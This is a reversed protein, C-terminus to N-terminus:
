RVQRKTLYSKSSGPNHLYQILSEETSQKRYKRLNAAQKRLGKAINEARTWVMRPCYWEFGQCVIDYAKVADTHVDQMRYTDNIMKFASKMERRIQPRELGMGCSRIVDLASQNILKEYENM